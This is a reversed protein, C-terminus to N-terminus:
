KIIGYFKGVKFFLITDFHSAKLKWWQQHGLNFSIKVYRLKNMIAQLKNAYFTRQSIYGPVIHYFICLRKNNLM